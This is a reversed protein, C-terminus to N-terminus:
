RAVIRQAASAVTVHGASLVSVGIPYVITVTVNVTGGVVNSPNWVTAVNVGGSPAAWLFPMVFNQVSAATCPTLSATSHLSAFRAGARSGYTANGYGFLIIAFSFLGLLLVFFVPLVIAMEIAAGGRDDWIWKGGVDGSCGRASLIKMAEM